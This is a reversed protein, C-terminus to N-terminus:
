SEGPQSGLGYVEEVASSLTQFDQFGLEEVRAGLPGASDYASIRMLQEVRKLGTTNDELIPMWARLPQERVIYQAGDIEITKEHLM